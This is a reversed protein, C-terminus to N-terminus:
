VSSEASDYVSPDRVVISEKSHVFMRRYIVRTLKVHTNSSMLSVGLDLTVWYTAKAPCKM